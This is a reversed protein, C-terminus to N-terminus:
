SVSSRGAVFQRLGRPRCSKKPSSGESRDALALETTALIGGLLNNFDHAIGRALQGVSELKQRALAEEQARKADTIDICTAIYGARVGDPQFRPVGNCVVSRYEGDARRL